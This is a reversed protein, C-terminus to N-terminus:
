GQMTLRHIELHCVTWLATGSLLTLASCALRSSARLLSAAASSCAAAPLELIYSSSDWTAFNLARMSTPVWAATNGTLLQWTEM